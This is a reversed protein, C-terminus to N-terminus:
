KVVKVRYQCKGPDPELTLAEIDQDMLVKRFQCELMDDGCSECVACSALAHAALTAFDSWSLVQTGAAAMMNIRERKAEYGEAFIIEKSKAQKMLLRVDKLDIEKLRLAFAKEVYSKATRYYKLMVKNVGKGKSQAEITDDLAATLAAVKLLQDKETASLYSTGM